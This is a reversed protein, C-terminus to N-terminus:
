IFLFHSAIAVFVHCFMLNESFPFGSPQEYANNPLQQAALSLLCKRWERRSRSASTEWLQINSRKKKNLIKRGRSFFIPFSSFFIVDRFTIHSDSWFGVFAVLFFDRFRLALNNVEKLENHTSNCSRSLFHITLEFRKMLPSERKTERLRGKHLLSNTPWFFFFSFSLSLLLVICCPPRTWPLRFTIIM